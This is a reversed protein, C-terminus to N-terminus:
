KAPAAVVTTVAAPDPGTVAAPPLIITKANETNLTDTVSTIAHKALDVLNDNAAQKADSSKNRAQHSFFIGAAALALGGLGLPTADALAKVGPDQTFRHAAGPDFVTRGTAPDVACGFICFAFALMALFFFLNGLWKYIRQKTM